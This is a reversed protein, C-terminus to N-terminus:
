CDGDPNPRRRITVLSFVIGAVIVSAEAAASALALAPSLTLAHSAERGAARGGPDGSGASCDVLVSDPIAADLLEAAAFLAEAIDRRPPTSTDPLAFTFNRGGSNGARGAAPAAQLTVEYRAHQPDRVSLAIGHGGIEVNEIAFGNPLRRQVAGTALVDTIVRSTDPTLCRMTAAVAPATTLVALCIALRVSAHDRV